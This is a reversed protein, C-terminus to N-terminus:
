YENDRLRPLHGSKSWERIKFLFAEVVQDCLFYQHETLSEVVLPNVKIYDKFKPERAHPYITEECKKCTCIKLPGPAQQLGSSLNVRETEQWFAFQIPDMM